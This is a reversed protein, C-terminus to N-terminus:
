QPASAAAAEAPLAWTFAEIGKAFADTLEQYPIAAPGKLLVILRYGGRDAAYSLARLGNPLRGDFRPKTARSLASM